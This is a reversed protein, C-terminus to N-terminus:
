PATVGQYLTNLAMIDFPHPSCDPENLTFVPVRGDYNMISDPIIPHAMRYIEEDDKNPAFAFLTFGSLGLAHGAEHMMTRFNGYSSSRTNFRIDSVNAPRQASGSDAAKTENQKILVDVSGHEEASSLNTAAQPGGLAVYTPSIVCADAPEDPALVCLPLSSKILEFLDIDPPSSSYQDFFAAILLNPAFDQLMQLKETVFSDYYSEKENVMIVENVDNRHAEVLKMPATDCTDSVTATTYILKSPPEATLDDIFEWAEFAKKTLDAWDGQTASPFTNKCITYDFTRNQWHGFTPYTAVRENRPPKEDSPWVYADRASFVKVGETTDYNVQIAYIRGKPLHMLPFSVVDSDTPQLIQRTRLSQAYYPWSTSSVWEEETHDSSDAGLQRYSIRYFSAGTIKQWQLRAQGTERGPSYGNASGATLIPNDILRVYESYDSDVYPDSADAAGSDHRDYITRIRYEYSEGPMLDAMGVPPSPNDRITDLIIVASTATQDAVAPSHWPTVAKQRADLKRVTIAYNDASSANPVSTWDLRAKRLPLPTITLDAPAALQVDNDLVRVSAEPPPSAIVYGTDAQVTVTITGDEEDVDDNDTRVRLEATASGSAITKETPAAGDLFDAGRPM